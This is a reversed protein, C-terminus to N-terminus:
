QRAGRRLAVLEDFLEHWESASLTAHIAGVTGTIRDVLEVLRPSITPAPAPEDGAEVTPCVLAGVEQFLDEVQEILLPQKDEVLEKLIGAVDAIALRYGRRVGAQRGRDEAQRVLARLQDSIQQDLDTM